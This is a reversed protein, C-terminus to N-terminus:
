RIQANEKNQCFCASKRVPLGFIASLLKFVANPESIICLLLMPKHPMLAPRAIGAGAALRQRSLLEMPIDSREM